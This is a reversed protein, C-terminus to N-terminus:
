TRVTWRTDGERTVSRELQVIFDESSIARTTAGSPEPEHGDRTTGAHPGPASRNDFADLHRQLHRRVGERDAEPIDAQPLRSLANRVGNVNAPGPEGGTVRHHPFKWDAKADPYGDGDPDDGNEDYWAYMGFGRSKTVPSSLKAEEAPGDWPEDVVESNHAPVASSYVSGSRAGGDALQAGLRAITAELTDVEDAMGLSVATKAMVMRGQGFQSRVTDESVGRGAAVAAVFMDYYGDIKEQLAQRAEDSLPRFPSLEAKYKGATIETTKIGQLANMGTLDDHSSIVGISGVEGSPTVVVRDAQSALWYAGSAAWTNAVAVIPKAGRAARIEDALEPILDVAGGPSDIDFVIAQVNGDALAARFRARIDEVSSLGSVRSFMGARPVIPGYVPIVAVPGSSDEDSADPAARSGIRAEIEEPTLERGSAREAIITKITQLTGSEIAWASESVFRASREFLRTRAVREGGLTVNASTASTSVGATSIDAPFFVKTSPWQDPELQRRLFDDTLSRVGATAGAYAPFTVPGFEPVRLELLTREPLGRPNHQSRRPRQVYDERLVSFRFSAGYLGERLGPLLEQNYATDLLQVEYLAGEEDEELRTIPGLIKNGISPDRGHEFLCRMQERQESFTKAFAGPAIRELFHGEYLSDIETWQNFRAFHGYLTPMGGDPASRLECGTDPAIARILNERPPRTASM